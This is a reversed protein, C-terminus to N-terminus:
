LETYKTSRGRSKEVPYRTENLELKKLTAAVLDVGLQESLYLLYSFIDAIESELEAIKDAPLNRSHEEPMWQFHELLEASEISLACALNKPSHFQGWDRADAFSRLKNRLVMLDNKM